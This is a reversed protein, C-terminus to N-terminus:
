DRRDEEKKIFNFIEKEDKADLLQQRFLKDKLLTSIKALAKLHMGSTDNVPTLLLFFLNVKEGDLSDFEVGTKSRAFTAVLTKVQDSKGHPIAIGYGIGTSGLGEREFLIKEIEKSKSIKKNKSLIGVLENIVDKKNKSKLDAAICSETLVDTIKM